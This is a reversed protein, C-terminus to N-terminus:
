VEGDDAAPDGAAADGMDAIHVDGCRLTARKRDGKCFVVVDQHIRTITRKARFPGTARQAATGISNILVMDNAYSWGVGAACRQMLAKMDMLDGRKNRASGVVFVAFSDDRLHRNMARFTDAMAADFEDPTMNSLDDPDDSYEELDYYPPCGLVMDAQLPPTADMTAVSDGVLWVPEPREASVNVNPAATARCGVVWLMDGDTLFPLCKAEYHGDLSLGGLYTDDPEDDYDVDAEVLTVRDRWGSPAFTDLRDSPDAGVRVGLVSVDSRGADQLGHLVGALSMGSGVPMVIRTVDDPVNEVQRATYQVALADEMGFPIEVCDPDKAADAARKVIVSNYGPTHREITAGAAAAADLEPTSGGSPVHAQATMGLHAAVDAVINVQPSFRSGATVLTSKGAQQAETALHLCTRVKGGRSGGIAFLDDRKVLHGAHEQVPTLADPDDTTAETDAPVDPLRDRVVDWQERNVDIQEPRLDIGTYSRGLAAAVIGRVSGGAWPDLVHFGPASFWSTLLESLAPDFVSTATGNGFPKM